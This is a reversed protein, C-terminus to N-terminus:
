VIEEGFNSGQYPFPGDCTEGRHIGLCKPCYGADDAVSRAWERLRRLEAILRPVDCEGVGDRAHDRGCGCDREVGLLEQETM